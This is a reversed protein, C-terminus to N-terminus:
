LDLIARGAAMSGANPIPHGGVILRFGAPPTPTDVPGVLIGEARFNPALADALGHAMAISAKGIAVAIIKEYAALNYASGNVTIESGARCLKRQMTAPIDIGALTAHFIQLASQKLNSMAILQTSRAEAQATM